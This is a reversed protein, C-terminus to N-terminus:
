HRRLMSGFRKEELFIHLAHEAAVQAALQDHGHRNACDSPDAAPEQTQGIRDYEPHHRTEKFQHGHESRDQRSHRRDNDRHEQRKRRHQPNEHEKERDLLNLAVYRPGRM